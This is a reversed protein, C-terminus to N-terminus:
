SRTSLIGRYLYVMYIVFYLLFWWGGGKVGVSALFIGLIMGPTLAYVGINFLGSYSINFKGMGNIILSFLGFVFIQLIRTISYYLFLSLGIIPFIPFPLIRRWRALTDPSLTFSKIKSLDYVIPETEPNPKYILKDKKILIGRPYDDLSEIRDATDIIIVMDGKKAVVTENYPTSVKGNIINIVPLNNEAWESFESFIKVLEITYHVSSILTVFCLLLVLYKFSESYHENIITKYFKFDRMRMSNVFKIFFNQILNPNM